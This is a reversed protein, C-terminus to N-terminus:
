EEVWKEGQAEKGKAPTTGQLSLVYSSVKAMDAPKLTKNWAIM